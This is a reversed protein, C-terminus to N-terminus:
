KNTNTLRKEIDSVSSTRLIITGHKNILLAYPLETVGYASAVEASGGKPNCLHITPCDKEAIYPLCEEVSGDLSVAVVGVSGGKYKECILEVDRLFAVAEKEWTAWFLLVTYNNMTVVDSFLVKDGSLDDLEFDVMRKGVATERVAEEAAHKYRRAVGEQEMIGDLQKRKLEFIKDHMCEPLSEFADLMIEPSVLGVSQTLMFHKLENSQEKEFSDAVYLDFVKGALSAIMVISDRMADSSAIADLIGPACMGRLAIVKEKENLFREMKDNLLTGGRSTRELMNFRITGPELMIYGGDIISSSSIFCVEPKECVGKFKFKGKKVVASDIPVLMDDIDSAMYRSMYVVTSDPASRFVGKVVYRSNDNCSLLLFSLLLLYFFSRM